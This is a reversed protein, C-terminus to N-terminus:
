IQESLYKFFVNVYGCMMLQFIQLIEIYQIPKFELVQVTDSTKLVYNYQKNKDHISTSSTWLKISCHAAWKGKPKHCVCVCACVYFVSLYLNQHAICPLHYFIKLDFPITIRAKSVRMMWREVYWFCVCRKMRLSSFTMTDLNYQSNLIAWKIHHKVIKVIDIRCMKEMLIYQFLSLRLEFRYVPLLKFDISPNWQNFIIHFLYSLIIGVM